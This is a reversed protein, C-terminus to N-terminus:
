EPVYFTRGAAEVAVLPHRFATSLRSADLVRDLPGALVGDPSLLLAHTAFRTALNPDHVSFLVGRGADRALTALHALVAIQHHLDLHAVPEDLVLLPSEQALLAAIAVRRREGGSLTTVDRVALAGLDLAALAARAIREDAGSEWELRSLHPHRGTLVIELVSAAFADHVFQPLFARRRAADAPPWDRVDRGDLRISGAAPRHLGVLTNLLTTKGAGNAGLLAWVEGARLAFTLDRVLLRAGVAVGLGKAALLPVRTDREAGIM